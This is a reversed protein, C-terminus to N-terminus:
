KKLYQYKTINIQFSMPFLIKLKRHGSKGKDQFLFPLSRYHNIKQQKTTKTTKRQGNERQGTSVTTFQLSQNKKRNNIFIQTM